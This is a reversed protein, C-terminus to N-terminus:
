DSEPTKLTLHISAIWGWFLAWGSHTVIWLGIMGGFFLAWNIPWASVSRYKRQIGSM